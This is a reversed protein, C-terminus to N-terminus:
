AWTPISCGDTGCRDVTLPEGIMTEMASRVALQVPHERDVYHATPVGMAEAVSLMGSHKGSCNNHVASPQEGRARLRERAPVFSPAHAGCELDAIGLGLHGLFETVGTVHAEEGQHSAC